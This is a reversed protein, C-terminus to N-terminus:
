EPSEVTFLVLEEEFQLLDEVLKGLTDIIPKDGEKIM